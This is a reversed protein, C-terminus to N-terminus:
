NTLDLGPSEQVSCPLGGSYKQGSGPMNELEWGPSRWSYNGDHLYNGGGGGGGGGRKRCWHGNM